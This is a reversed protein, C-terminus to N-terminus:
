DLLVSCSDKFHLFNTWSLKDWNETFFFLSFLNHCFLDAVLFGEMFLFGAFEDLLEHWYLKWGFAMDMLVSHCIECSILAFWIEMENSMNEMRMKHRGRKQALKMTQSFNIILYNEYFKNDGVFTYSSAHLITDCICMLHVVFWM